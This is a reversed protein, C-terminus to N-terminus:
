SSLTRGRRVKVLAVFASVPRAIPTICVESVAISVALRTAVTVPSIFAITVITMGVSVAVSLASVYPVVAASVVAAIVAPM